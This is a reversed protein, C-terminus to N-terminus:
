KQTGLRAEFIHLSKNLDQLKPKPAEFAKRSDGPLEWSLGSGLGGLPRGPGRGPSIWSGGLLGWFNELLRELLWGFRGLFSDIKRLMELELTYRSLLLVCNCTAVIFSDLNVILRRLHFITM